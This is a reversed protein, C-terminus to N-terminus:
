KIPITLIMRTGDKYDKDITLTGGLLIAIKRSMPLGIGLGQKFSDLKYFHEFVQEHQDEPIGVGTDTVIFYMKNDDNNKYVRLEVQGQETFKLANSLLQHLIREIGNQNSYITCDDPLSTQFSLALRGKNRDEAEKMVQHCFHNVAIHDDKHYREKSEEQSVELLDNVIDTIAITNRGIAQLMKNREEKELEFSPNTIIQAYGTIVNLPTRIEHSVHQIFINKMRESEKVEDLAIELQGNQKEIKRQYRQRSFYRSIILGLAIFLLAIVVVLWLEREKAAQENLKAIGAASNVENINNFLLDNNLSDRLDRRKGTEKLAWDDHGMMEFIHIRIDYRRIGDYDQTEQDLLQLAEDYEGLFAKEMVTLVHNGYSSIGAGPYKKLFEEQERQNEFFAEKEGNFFCIQGKLAFYLKYSPQNKPTVSGLLENWHWAMKTDRTINVSALQAYINTLGSSDTSATNNLSEQYYHLAMRYNGRTEFINGLALYVIDYRKVDSNKMNELIDNAKKIAKYSEGHSADYTIENQLITYYGDLDEKEEYYQQLQASVKYFEETSDTDLLRYFHRNLNIFISDDEEKATVTFTCFLTILLIYIYRIMNITEEFTPAFICIEPCDQLNGTVNGVFLTRM